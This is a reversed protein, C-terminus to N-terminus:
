LIFETPMGRIRTLHNDRRDHHQRHEPLKHQSGRRGEHNGQRICRRRRGARRSMNEQSRRAPGGLLAARASGRDPDWKAMASLDPRIELSSDAAGDGIKIECDRGRGIWGGAAGIQFRQPPRGHPGTLSVELKPPERQGDMFITIRAAASRACTPSCSRAALHRGQLDTKWGPAYRHHAAPNDARSGVHHQVPTCERANQGPTAHKKRAEQANRPPGPGAVSATSASKAIGRAADRCSVGSSSCLYPRWENLAPPSRLGPLM